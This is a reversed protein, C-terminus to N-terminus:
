AGRVRLAEAQFIRLGPIDRVGARTIAERVVAVDLSLYERPVQDLDIVEFTWSRSVYATSGYGGYLRTPELSVRAQRGAAAARAEAEEALRLEELARQRDTLGAGRALQEALARHQAAEAM